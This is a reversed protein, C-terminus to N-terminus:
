DKLLHNLISKIDTRLEKHEARNESHYRELKKDYSSVMDLRCNEMHAKSAFTTHMWYVVGGAASGLAFLSFQWHDIAWHFIAHLASIDDSTPQVSM